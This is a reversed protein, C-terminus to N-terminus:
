AFLRSPISSKGRHSLIANAEEVAGLPCYLRKVFVGQKNPWCTLEPNKQEYM